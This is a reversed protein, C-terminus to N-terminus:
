LWPKRARVRISSAMAEMAELEKRKGSFVKEVLAQGIPDSRLLDLSLISEEIVEVDEFGSSKIIELYHEKEVAGSLCGVYAEASQKVFDPLDQLLVIDSVMLRGGPKLVRFAEAFAKKKDPVLNIVCNSITVDVSGDAVPLRELEGLRFEVNSYNGRAANERAREVMEPTMDVGIVRGSSGVRESALFSDFGAGSGLDLVTEGEKIAALAIPNGCGLGLNSGSPVAKLDEESYGIKRSIAEPSASTCCGSKSPCCSGGQRAINGYGKRVLVKLEADKM